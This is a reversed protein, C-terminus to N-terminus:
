LYITSFLTRKVEIDIDKLLELAKDLGPSMVSTLIIKKGDNTLIEAHYYMECSLMAFNGPEVNASKYLKIKNLEEVQYVVQDEKDSIIVFKSNIEITKNRTTIYYEFFLYVTPLVPVCLLLTLFLISQSDIIGDYGAWALVLLLVIIFLRVFPKFLETLSLKFVM